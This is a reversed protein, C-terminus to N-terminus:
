GVLDIVSVTNGGYNTVYARTGAPNVAVWSPASGVGITATVAPSNTPPAYFDIVSVTDDGQNAVYAFGGTPDVAVGFPSAGVDLTLGVTPTTTNDLYILSVTGDGQNAVVAIRGTPDVAVGAPNDGVTITSKVYWPALSIVSVSNGDTCFGGATFCGHTVYADPHPLEYTRFTM